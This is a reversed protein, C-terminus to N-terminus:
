VLLVGVSVCTKTVTQSVNGYQCLIKKLLEKSGFFGVKQFVGDGEGRWISNVNSSKKAM